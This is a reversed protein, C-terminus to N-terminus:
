PRTNHNRKAHRSLLSQEYDTLKQAPPDKSYVRRALREAEARGVVSAVSRLVADTRRSESEEVIQRTSKM